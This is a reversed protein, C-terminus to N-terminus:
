WKILVQKGYILDTRMRIPVNPPHLDILPVRLLAPEQFLLRKAFSHNAPVFSKDFM